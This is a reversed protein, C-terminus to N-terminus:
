AIRSLRAHANEDGRFTARYHAKCAEPRCRTGLIAHFFRLDSPEKSRVLRDDLLQKTGSGIKCGGHFTEDGKRRLMPSTHHRGVVCLPALKRVLEGANGPHQRTISEHWVM